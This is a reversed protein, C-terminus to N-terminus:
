REGTGGSGGSGFYQQVLLAKIFVLLGHFFVVLLLSFWFVFFGV